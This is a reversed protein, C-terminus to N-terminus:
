QREGELAELKLRIFDALTRKDEAAMKQLVKKLKKEVRIVITADKKM